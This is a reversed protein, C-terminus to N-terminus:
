RTSRQGSRDSCTFCAIKHKSLHILSHASACWASNLPRSARVDPPDAYAFVDIPDAQFRKICEAGDVNFALGLIGIFCSM